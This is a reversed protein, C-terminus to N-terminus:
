VHIKVKSHMESVFNILAMESNIVSKDNGVTKQSFDLNRKHNFM